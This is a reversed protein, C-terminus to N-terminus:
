LARILRSDVATKQEVSDSQECLRLKTISPGLLTCEAIASTLSHLYLVLIM